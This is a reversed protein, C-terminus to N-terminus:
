GEKAADLVRREELLREITSALTDLHVPKELLKAGPWPQDLAFLMTQRKEDLHEMFGTLLIVPISQTQPDRQLEQALVLGETDSEMMVDLVILDPRSSPILQKAEAGSAACSVRYGRPTLFAQISLLLDRDDDVLLIHHTNM